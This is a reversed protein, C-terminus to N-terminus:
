SAEEPPKPQRNKAGYDQRHVLRGYLAATREAMLADHYRDQVAEMGRRGLETVRSSDEVLELLSAALSEASRPEFLVGAGTDSVLEPFAGANPAVVPRGNAWAELAAIGKSEPFVSPLCVIDVSQLFDIKGSRDPSGAYRFRGRLEGTDFRREIDRLYARDESALYGAAHLTFRLDPKKQTLIEVAEALLHLGKDHCIRSFYGIRFDDEQNTNGSTGSDPGHGGLKIGPPIVHIAEEPVGLYDAMRRAFHHNMAVMADIQGACRQLEERVETAHPEPLKEVFIDEGTLSVVVPVNLRSRIPGALGALLVNSLHIVDIKPLRTLLDLLKAVEKGQRGSEGRLMSVTLSGLEAADTNGGWRSLWNVLSPRDLLRDVFAPTKRFLSFKEQLFVNLGGFALREQRISADDTRVPTYLPMLMVDHGAELLASALTNGHLCSGCYMGGAGSILHVVSLPSDTSM